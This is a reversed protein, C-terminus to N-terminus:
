RRTRLARLDAVLLEFVADRAADDPARLIASPHYSVIVPSGHASAIPHGRDKTITVKRGLLSRAATAGLAVIVDPAVLKIETSLWPKCKEIEGGDPKQHLRRKGYPRWKFHKVANTVYIDDRGIGALALAKDLMTGAPGVFPRGRKDEEDGPQEGVLMVRAQARGEGFVTQTANKYLPCGHCHSAAERQVALSRSDAVYAAASEQEKVVM